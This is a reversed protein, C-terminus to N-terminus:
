PSYLISTYEIGTLQLPQGQARNNKRAGIKKKLYIYIYIHLDSVMNENYGKVYFMKVELFYPLTIM